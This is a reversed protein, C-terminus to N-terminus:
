VVIPSCLTIAEHDPVKEMIDNKIFEEIRDQLPKILHYPVRRPKQVIPIADEKMPLHIQIEQGDRTAKGIGEIINKYRNLIKELEPNENEIKKVAKNPEKLGGTEDIKLM